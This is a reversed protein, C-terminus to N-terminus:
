VVAKLRLNIERDAIRKERAQKYEEKLKNQVKWADMSLKDLVEFEKTVKALRNKCATEQKAIVHFADYAERYKDFLSDGHLVYAKLEEASYDHEWILTRLKKFLVPHQEQPITELLWDWMLVRDLGFHVYTKKTSKVSRVLMIEFQEQSLPNIFKENMEKFADAFTMQKRNVKQALIWQAANDFIKKQTAM